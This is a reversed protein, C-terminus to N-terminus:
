TAAKAEVPLTFVFTAGHPENKEVWLRGGHSEIISRCIALGMGMGQEKTTFFPEFIRDPFEVGPGRDSIEAQVVDGLRRVRVGLAKADGATDMAEIGNRILNILVQQIQVLDFTIPPLESEVNIEVRVGRRAAEESVMSRAEAIVSGLMTSNKLKASQKFLARVRSVIDAASNADRIIRQAIIKAREIRPPENSLWRHCAHSNAIIAALPQNVEHAISASLEALTAAQSSVALREQTRRLEEQTRVEDDIDFSVGYWELIQGSASRLPEARGNIWGYVGDARRQRYKMAFAEGTAFAHALARGVAPADDPHVSSQIAVQLRSADPVDLDGSTLGVYEALRRNLYSPEGEATAAWVQTPLTDIMQRLHRESERLAEEARLQDDIDHCLGYWQLIRGSEDRLPEGRGSMWRYVGDARRLRYNLSFSEGTVFSHNLAEGLRAADDPHAVAEIIAALRTSDPRDADAVDLGFFDIMRRSFFVPEGDPNLRWLLSPVMDVLQSLERERERLAEVSERLTLLALQHQRSIAAVILASFASIALFLQLMIQKHKQSEADGVFQSAGSITFVATILALLILAVAAGRFEFRVAAWLLPPMIIYSFPLYGSLSLAAVGLLIV